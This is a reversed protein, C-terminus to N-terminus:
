KTRIKKENKGRNGRGKCPKRKDTGRSSKSKNKSIEQM